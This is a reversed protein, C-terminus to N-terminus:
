PQYVIRGLEAGCVPCVLREVGGEVIHKEQVRGDRPCIM